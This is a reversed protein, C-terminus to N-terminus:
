KKIDWMPTVGGNVMLDVNINPKNKLIEVYEKTIELQKLQIFENASLGLTVRYAKDAEARASEAAKRKIEADEKKSQTEAAQIQAATRDMEDLGLQNPKARGIIVAVINVPMNKGNIVAEMYSYVERNITEYIERDSTLTFMNYKSIQNRVIERFKAQINNEYWKNGFDKHLVPSSGKKLQLTLYAELDVPTNNNTIADDFLESYQVPSNIYKHFNTSFVKWTSGEMLANSDVGGSGFFLPKKVFVGEENGEVSSLQCGAFVSAFLVLSLYKKM